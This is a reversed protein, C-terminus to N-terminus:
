IQEVRIKVPLPRAQVFDQPHIGTIGKKDPLYRLYELDGHISLKQSVKHDPATVAASMCLWIMAVASLLILVCLLLRPLGTKRAICTLWDSGNTDDLKQKWPDAEAANIEDSFSRASKLQSHRLVETATNGSPEINTELLLSTGRSASYDDFDQVDMDQALPLSRIVMMHGQDDRVFFSWSVCMQDTMKDVMSSYMNHMFLLPYLAHSVEMDPMSFDTLQQHRATFLKQSRCGLICSSTDETEGPYANKCDEYCSRLTENVDNEEGVPEIISYLRCGRSCSEGFVSKYTSSPYTKQCVDECPDVDGFPRDLFFSATSSVLLLLLFSYLLKNTETAM